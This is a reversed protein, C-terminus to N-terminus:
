FAIVAPSPPKGRRTCAFTLELLLRRRIRMAGFWLLTPMSARSSAGGPYRLSKQDRLRCRFLVYPRELNQNERHFADLVRAAVAAAYRTLGSRSTLLNESTRVHLVRELPSGVAAPPLCM